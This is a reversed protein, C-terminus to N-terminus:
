MPASNTSQGPSKTDPFALIRSAPFSAKKRSWTVTAFEVPKFAFGSKDQGAQPVEREVVQLDGGARPVQVAKMKPM